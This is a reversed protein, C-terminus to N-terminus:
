VVMIWCYQVNKQLSFINYGQHIFVITMSCCAPILLYVTGQALYYM